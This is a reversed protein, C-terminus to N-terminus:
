LNRSLVAIASHLDDKESFCVQIHRDGGAEFGTRGHMIRWNDAIYIDGPNIQFRIQYADDERMRAFTHYADYYAEMVDQPFRFPQATFNPSIFLTPQCCNSSKLNM